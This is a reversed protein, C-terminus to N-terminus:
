KRRLYHDLVSLLNSSRYQIHDRSLIEPSVQHIKQHAKFSVAERKKNNQDVPNGSFVTEIDTCFWVMEYDHEKCYKQAKEFFNRDETKTFISDTDFCFLTHTVNKRTSEAKQFRSALDRITKEKRTYKTKGDLYVPSLKVNEISYFHEIAEKIYLWDSNCKRNTELVFILQQAM